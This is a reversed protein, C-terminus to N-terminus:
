ALILFTQDDCATTGSQFNSLEVALDDKLEAATRRTQLRSKFWAVLRDQGFFEGQPSRAETVGDTYLLVRCNEALKETHTLYATNPLIGLPLGEPAVTKVTKGDDAALLLPCHGASAAVIERRTVDIFALQATIFMDVGSLEDFLLRNVRSLLTAPQNTWEPVARLLSRLIAAFMAAPIGKGMVDAVILLLSTDNLKIVDYFDGGVQRASECYGAVQYGPVDPLTKPLLSRQINQAIELERSVLRSAVQEEQFRANVIQIALFDAFTHVVNAQVATFNQRALAKGIALTGILREGFSIPHILGASHPKVAALPDKPDLHRLQDFWVDQRTAGAEAESSRSGEHGASWIPLPALQLLPESAAFVVLKSAEKSLLRLVFWDASTIQVLDALLRQSFDHLNNTRGLEASCRFIASLSEYCFSLEDAMESIIQESEVLKDTGTEAPVGGPPCLEQGERDKLMVLCNTESSRLYQSSNMLSQILFLGRGSEQEPDPLEVHAPWDFGGTHDSIRMEITTRGCLVDVTVPMQRGQETAYQIANNIAEVLALECAKLRQVAVGQKELFDSVTLAAPRVETLDCALSLKLAASRSSRVSTEAM